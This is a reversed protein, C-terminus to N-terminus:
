FAGFLVIQCWKYGSLARDNEFFKLIKKHFLDAILCNELEVFSVEFNIKFENEANENLIQM